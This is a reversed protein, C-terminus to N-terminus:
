RSEFDISAYELEGYAEGLTTRGNLPQNWSSTAENGRSESWSAGAGRGHVIFPETKRRTELILYGRDVLRM